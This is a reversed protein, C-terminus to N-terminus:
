APMVGGAEEYTVKDEETALRVRVEGRIVEPKSTVDCLSAKRRFVGHRVRLEANEANQAWVLATQFGWRCLWLEQSATGDYTM